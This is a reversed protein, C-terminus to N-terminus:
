CYKGSRRELEFINEPVTNRRTGAGSCGQTDYYCSDSCHGTGMLVTVSRYVDDDAKLSSLNKHVLYVTTSNM